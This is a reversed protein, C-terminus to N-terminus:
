KIYLCHNPACRYDDRRNIGFTNIEDETPNFNPIKAVIGIYDFVMNTYTEKNLLSYLYM